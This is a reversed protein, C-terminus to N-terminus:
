QYKVGKAILGIERNRKTMFGWNVKLNDLKCCPQLLM